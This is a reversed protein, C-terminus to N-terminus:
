RSGKALVKEEILDAIAIFDDLAYLLADTDPTLDTAVAILGPDGSCVLDTSVGSRLVEIKPYASGKFGETIVLDVGTFYSSIIREPAWEAEVDSIVALKDASSLAVSAAGARKLRWSDKGEHDIEFSHADHKLAGVRVGRSNFEAILKEILTTKGSGSRGVISVVPTM